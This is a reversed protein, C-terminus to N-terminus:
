SSTVTFNVANSMGNANIVSIAYTGPQTLSVPALCPPFSDWCSLYNSSPVIFTISTGNSNLSYSPNNEVGLNGFKIKNGTATFNAGYIVVQTGVVGSSSSLSYIIPLQSNNVIVTANAKLTNGSSDQYTATITATGQSVGTVVATLYDAAAFCYANPPCANKYQVTVVNPNSSVWTAQIPFPSPISQICFMGVLCQPMPPQYIAQFTATGGIKVVANNPNIVLSTSPNPIISCPLGTTISYGFFSTCGPPFNSGIWVARSKPGFIGDAVLGNASQWAVVKTKTKQGFIGDAVLGGLFTQLCVVQSGRSGVQLTNGITCTTAGAFSVNINFSVILSLIFLFLTYKKV